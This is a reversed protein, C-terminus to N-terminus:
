SLPAVYGTVSLWGISLALRQTVRLANKRSLLWGTILVTVGGFSFWLSRIDSTIQFYLSILQEPTM